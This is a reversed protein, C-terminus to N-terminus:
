IASIFEAPFARGESATATAMSSSGVSAFRPGLAYVQKM